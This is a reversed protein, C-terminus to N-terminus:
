LVDQHTLDVTPDVDPIFPQQTGFIPAISGEDIANIIATISFYDRSWLYYSAISSLSIIFFYIPYKTFEYFILFLIFFKDSYILPINLPKQPINLAAYIFLNLPVFILFPYHKSCGVIGIIILYVPIHIIMSYIFFALLSIKGLVKESISSYLCILSMILGDFASPWCLLSHILDIFFIKRIKDQCLTVIVTLFVTAILTNNILPTGLHINTYSDLDM